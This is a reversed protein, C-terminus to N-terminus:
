RVVRREWLPGSRDFAMGQCNSDGGVASGGFQKSFKMISVPVDWLGQGQIGGTHEDPDCIAGTLPDPLVMVGHDGSHVEVSRAVPARPKLLPALDGASHREPTHHPQFCPEVICTM